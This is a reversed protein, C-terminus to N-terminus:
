SLRPWTSQMVAPSSGQLMPRRSSSDSSSDSLCEPDEESPSQRTLSTSTQMSLSRGVVGSSSSFRRNVNVNIPTANNSWQQQQQQPVGSGMQQPAGSGMQQPVGSGMQQPVGSGM